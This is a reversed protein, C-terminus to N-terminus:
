LVYKNMSWNTNYILILALKKLGKIIMIRLLFYRFVEIIMGVVM